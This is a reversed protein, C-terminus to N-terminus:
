ALEFAVFQVNQIKAAPGVFAGAAASIQVTLFIPGQFPATLRSLTMCSLQFPFADTTGMGQALVTSIALQTGALTDRRIRAILSVEAGPAGLFGSCTGFIWVLGNRSAPTWFLGSLQVETTSLLVYPLTVSPGSQGSWQTTADLKLDATDISGPGYSGPPFGGVPFGTPPLHFDTALDDATIRQHLDLKAYDIRPGTHPAVLINDNDIGGNFEGYIVNYDHDVEDERILDFGNQVETTYQRTGGTKAPRLIQAM